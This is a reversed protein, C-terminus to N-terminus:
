ATVKTLARLRIGHEGTDATAEHSAEAESVEDDYSCAVALGEGRL